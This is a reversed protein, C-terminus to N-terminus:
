RLPTQSFKIEYMKPHILKNLYNSNAINLIGNQVGLLKTFKDRESISLNKSM